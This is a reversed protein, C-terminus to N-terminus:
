HNISWPFLDFNLQYCDTKKGEMSLERVKELFNNFEIEMKKRSKENSSFTVSFSKKRELPVRTKKFLGLQRLLQHHAGVIKSERPLHMSGVLVKVKGNNIEILNMEVLKTLIDKLHNNSIQLEDCILDHNKQFRPITLFMHVVLIIPDLYYEVYDSSDFTDADMSRINKGLVEKSDRKSDQIAEIEQLLEDRRVDFTSREYELLLNLYHKEEKDLGLYECAMYLQDTSFDARNNIVKSLYPKQVRMFEAMAQFTFSKDLYKKKELLERLIHRYDNHEYINM